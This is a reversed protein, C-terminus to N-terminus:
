LLRGGHRHGPIVAGDPIVRTAGQPHQHAQMVGGDPMVHQGTNHQMQHRGPMTTGDPM